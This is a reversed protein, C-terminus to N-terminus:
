RKTRRNECDVIRVCVWVPIQIGNLGYYRKTFGNKAEFGCFYCRKM